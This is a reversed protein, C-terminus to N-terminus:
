GGRLADLALERGLRRGLRLTEPLRPPQQPVPLLMGNRLHEAENVLDNTHLTGLLQSVGSANFAGQLYGLGLPGGAVRYPSWEPVGRRNAHAWYGADLIERIPTRRAEERLQQLAARDRDMGEPLHAFSRLIEELRMNAWADFYRQKRARDERQREQEARREEDAKIARLSDELARADAAETTVRRYLAFALVLVVLLPLWPLVATLPTM